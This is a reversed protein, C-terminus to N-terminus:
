KKPLARLAPPVYKSRTSGEGNRIRLYKDTECLGGEIERMTIPRPIDSSLSSKDSNAIELIDRMEILSVNQGQTSNLERGFLRNLGRVAGPGCHAWTFLDVANRLHGSYALDSVVEYAIFGGIGTYRALERHTSELSDRIPYPKKFVPDVVGFVVWRYKPVNIPGPAITYAGTYIQDGREQRQKLVSSVLNPDWTEPFGIEELTDPHNIYRALVLASPLNPHDEYPEIWNEIIWRSVRDDQRFVNCFYYERLIPDKTWPFNEGASKKLFIRQRENMWYWLARYDPM